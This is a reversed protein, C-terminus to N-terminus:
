EGDAVGPDTGGTESGSEGELVVVEESGRSLLLLAGVLTGFVAAIGLLYAIRRTRREGAGRRRDTGVAGPRGAVGGTRGRDDGSSAVGGAGGRRDYEETARGGFAGGRRYEETSKGPFPDGRDYEETPVSPGGPGRERRRGRVLEGGGSSGNSGEADRYRDFDETAVAAEPFKVNPRDPRPEVGADM